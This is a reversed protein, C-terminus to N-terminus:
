LSLTRVMKQGLAYAKLGLSYNRDGSTKSVYGLRELTLMIVHASSKPIRLKRSIESINFGRNSGDLYELIALVREVSTSCPTSRAPTANPMTSLTIGYEPRLGSLSAVSGPENREISQVFVAEPISASPGQRRDEFSDDQPPEGVFRIDQTSRWAEERRRSPW